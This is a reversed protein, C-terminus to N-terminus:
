IIRGYKKFSGSPLGIEASRGRKKIGKGDHKKALRFPSARFFLSAVQSLLRMAKM